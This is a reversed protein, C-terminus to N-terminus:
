EYMSDIENKYKKDLVKRKLKLSPTLEGNDITFETPLIKFKKISEYSALHMNADAVAKKVLILVHENECLDTWKEYSWNKDKALDELIVRDLTLLATVYKKQDGHILAQAILPSMKLLGELRQPAIYKGGATKILDKKRDTIKLDGTTTIEGIDGTHFWGDTFVEKSAEPNNYYEKMVKKSKVLIEGDDAIKLKVDGIPRGVSGFRYHFPTNVTIAATTETLGYGELILIGSAHFFASIDSHIPAGGSVAFRLRGGFADRVKNLVLRKALEYKILLEIPITQKTVKFHSIQKGVELASYFIKSKIPKTEIQALITSYIKEYIRPVSILITPRVEKLNQKLSDISEAYNICYGIIMHAWLEIRGFIHAFPLFALTEDSSTAGCLPFAETIESIIASHQLVVGKPKGTTGSTYLITAISDLSVTSAIDKVCDPQEVLFSQGSNIFEEFLFFEKPDHSFNDLVIIQKVFACNNKMSMWTLYQSKGELILIKPKADKLIYEVDESSNNHYVPVTIGGISLTAFDFVGWEWRTNSMIAVKDNTKVGYRLLAAACAEIKQSYVQWSLETWGSSNKYRLAPSEEKRNHCNKIYQLITKNTTYNM